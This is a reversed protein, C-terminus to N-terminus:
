LLKWICRVENFFFESTLFVTKISTQTDNQLHVNIKWSVVLEFYFSFSDEFFNTSVLPRISLSNLLFNVM